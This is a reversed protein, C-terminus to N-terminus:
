RASSVRKRNFNATSSLVIFLRRLSSFMLFFLATFFSSLIPLTWTKMGILAVGPQSVCVHQWWCHWSARGWSRAHERHCRAACWPPARTRRCESRTSTAPLATSSTGKHLPTNASIELNASGPVRPTGPPSAPVSQGTTLSAAARPHCLGVLCCRAVRAHAAGCAARPRRLSPQTLVQAARPPTRM